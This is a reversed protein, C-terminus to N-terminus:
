QAHATTIARDDGVELLGQVLQPKWRTLCLAKGLGEPM